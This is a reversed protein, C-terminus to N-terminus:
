GDEKTLRRHEKYHHVAHCNACLLDCKDLEDEIRSWSYRGFMTSLKAHKKHPQRHHFQMAAHHYSNGCQTCCTGLYEIARLKQLLKKHLSM